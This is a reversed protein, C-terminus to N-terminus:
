FNVPANVGSGLASWETGNWKAIRNAPVEGAITYTGGCLPSCRDGANAAQEPNTGGVITQATLEAASPPGTIEKRLLQEVFFLWRAHKM